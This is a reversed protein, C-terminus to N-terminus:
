LGGRGRRGGSEGRKEAAKADIAGRLRSAAVHAFSQLAETCTETEDLKFYLADKEADFRGLTEPCRKM